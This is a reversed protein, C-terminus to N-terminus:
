AYVLKSCLSCVRNNDAVWMYGGYQGWDSGWSNRVKFGYVKTGPVIGYGVVVMAHHTTGDFPCTTSVYAGTNYQYFGEEVSMSAVVPGRTLLQRLRTCNGNPTTEGQSGAAAMYYEFYAQNPLKVLPKTTPCSTSSQVGAYPIDTSLTTGVNFLFDVGSGTFGGNCGRNSTDCNILHQESLAVKGGGRIALYAEFYAVSAFAWCSGCPNQDKVATFYSTWDISEVPTTTFPVKRDIDETAQFFKSIPAPQENAFMANREKLSLNSECTLHRGYKAPTNGERKDDRFANLTECWYVYNKYVTSPNSPNCTQDQWGCEKAKAIYGTCSCDHNAKVNTQATYAAVNVVAFCGTILFAACVKYFNNM